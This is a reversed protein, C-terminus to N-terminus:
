YIFLEAYDYAAILEAETSTLSRFRKGINTCKNIFDDAEDGQMFIGEYGICEIAVWSMHNTIDVTIGSNVVYDYQQKLIKNM